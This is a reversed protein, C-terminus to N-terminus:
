LTAKFWQATEEIAIHQEKLHSFDHDSQPLRMMKTEAHADTRVRSYDDAHTINVQDDREGHIHLLPIHELSRLDQELNLALFEHLFRESAVNGEFKTLEERKEPPTSPDQFKIWKEQWQRGSFAPSWLAISKVKGSHAAVMVGVVGGLSRGFLGIRKKDVQPDNELFRMAVMADSIESTITMDTFEGESDGSGRFDYRLAIIGAKSLEEALRVYMRFKGSKNGAFGHCLLVAPCSIQALPRHIVGFIKQGQNSLLVPDRIEFPKQM